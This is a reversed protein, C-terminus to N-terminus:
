ADGKRCIASRHNGVFPVIMLFLDAGTATKRSVSVMGRRNGKGPLPTKDNHFDVALVASGCTDCYEGTIPKINHINVGQLSLLFLFFSPPRHASHLSICVPLM